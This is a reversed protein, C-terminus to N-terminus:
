EPFKEPQLASKSEGFYLASENCAKLSQPRQILRCAAQCPDTNL